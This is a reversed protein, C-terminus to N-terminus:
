LYAATAGSTANLNEANDIIGQRAVESGYKAYAETILTVLQEVGLDEPVGAEGGIGYTKAIQEL